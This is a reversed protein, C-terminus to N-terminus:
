EVAFDPKNKKQHSYWTANEVLCERALYVIQEPTEKKTLKIEREVKQYLWFMRIHEEIKSSLSMKGYYNSLFITIATATGVGIKFGARVWHAIEFELPMNLMMSIEFFLAIGYVILTVALAIKEYLEHREYQKLAKKHANDHYNMQNRIWCDLISERINADISSLESFVDKILPIGLYTFWPMLEVVNKKVGSKSIFYQTRLTEALVRYELYKAHSDEDKPHTYVFYLLLILATVAIIIWHLEIAEYLLFFFVIFPAIISIRIIKQRHKEYHKMSLVDAAGYLEDIECLVPNTIDEEIHTLEELGKREEDFEKKYIM